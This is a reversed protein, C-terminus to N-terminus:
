PGSARNKEVIAVVIFVFALLRLAYPWPAEVGAGAALSLAIRQVVLIGFAMAFWAFLRDGTQKWFKLFFLAAIAYGALLMGSILLTVVENRTM